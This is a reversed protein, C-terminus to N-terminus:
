GTAANSLSSDAEKRVDNASRPWKETSKGIPLVADALGPGWYIKQNRVLNLWMEACGGTHWIATKLPNITTM